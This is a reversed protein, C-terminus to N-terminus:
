VKIRNYGYNAINSQTLKVVDVTFKGVRHQKIKAIQQIDHELEKGSIADKIFKIYISKKQRWPIDLYKPGTGPEQAVPRDKTGHQGNYPALQEHAYVAIDFYDRMKSYSVESRVTRVHKLDALRIRGLDGNVTGDANGTGIVLRGGRGLKMTATGSERLEGTDMPVRPQANAMLDLAVLGVARAVKLTVLQKFANLNDIVDSLGTVEVSSVGGGFSLNSHKLAM